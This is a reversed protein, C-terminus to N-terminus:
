DALEITLSLREAGPSLQVELTGRAGEHEAELLVEGLPVDALRFNGDADTRTAATGITVRADAVRRGHRDRVVGALVAGRALELQVEQLLRGARVAVPQSAAAYGSARASVRWAGPVLGRLEVFGRPDTPRAVTQGDPGALEVRIGALPAGSHADRVLCRVGGGADLRLERWRQTDLEFRKAPLDPSSAEVVYRGSAVRDLTFRGQADTLARRRTRGEVVRVTVNPAAGGDPALVQGRLQADEITLEFLERDRVRRADREDVVLTREAEGFGPAIVTITVKGALSRLAFLGNRDTTTTAIKHATEGVGAGAFVTAGALPAGRGLVMGQVTVGGYMTVVVGPTEDGTRVAFGSSAGPAFDTAFAAAVYTGPVVGDVRFVGRADTTVRDVALARSLEIPALAAPDVPELARPAPLVVAHRLMPEPDLYWTRGRHEHTIAFHLHPVSRTFGTSGLTGVPEGARIPQGVELGPRLEDLHMYFTKVGGGHHIAVVRGAETRPEPFIAAIEGDAAAHITSGRQTGLDVGCHGRGCETPRQGPRPVGFRTSDTTPLWRREALPHVWRVGTSVLALPKSAGLMSGQKDRLVITANAVPNGQTDVVTGTVAGARITAVTVPASGDAIRVVQDDPQAFGPVNAEVRWRGRPVGDVAFQGREDLARVRTAHDVDLPVLTVTAGPPVAGEVTVHGRVNAAPELALALPAAGVDAIRVVPSVRADAAAWLEYPGSALEAFRVVGDRDSRATALVPRSGDTIAVEVGAVPAGADTVRATVIARPAVPVVPEPVRPVQAAARAAPTSALPAQTGTREVPRSAIVALAVVALM